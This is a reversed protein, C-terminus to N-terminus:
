NQNRRIGGPETKEIVEKRKTGKSNLRNQAREQPSHYCTQCCTGLPASLGEPFRPLEDKPAERRCGDCRDFGSAHRSGCVGLTGTVTLGFHGAAVRRGRAEDLLMLDAKMVALAIAETEGPDLGALIPDSVSPAIVAELWDESRGLMERIQLPASPAKLEEQVAGPIIVRGFLTPLLRELGILTLYNIPSNDSVVTM